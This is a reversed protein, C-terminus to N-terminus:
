HDTTFGSLDNLFEARFIGTVYKIQPMTNVLGDVRIVQFYQDVGYMFEALIDPVLEIEQWNLTPYVFHLERVHWM